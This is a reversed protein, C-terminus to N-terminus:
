IGALRKKDFDLIKIKERLVGYSCLPFKVGHICPTDPLALCNLAEVINKHPTMFLKLTM